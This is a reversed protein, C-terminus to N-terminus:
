GLPLRRSVNSGNRLQKGPREAFQTRDFNLCPLEDTGGHGVGNHM